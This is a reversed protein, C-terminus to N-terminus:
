AARLDTIQNELKKKILYGTCCPDCKNCTKCVENIEKLLDELKMDKKNRSQIKKVSSHDRLGTGSIAVATGINYASGVGHFM